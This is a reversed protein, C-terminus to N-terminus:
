ARLFERLGHRLFHWYGQIALLSREACQSRGRFHRWGFQVTKGALQVPADLLVVLKYFQVALRSYGTKRLYRVFGTAMHMSVFGIHQRTSVRGYHTIEVEPHYVIPYRENVQFSLDLDEGGFTYQEDWGGCAFFVSRPMLMAAGMLLDVQRTSEPDFDQRRYRRYARKLLGTWRVLSTRHLLVALTPRSRYSVQPRGEGDRLRPGILGVEPHADAFDILRRLAGAPVETDNNLFFLYRGRALAAAQNNGRAFGYNEPNRWLVVDPFEHAVMDAAGDASANDIVIIELRV